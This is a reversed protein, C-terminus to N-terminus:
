TNPVDRFERRHAVAFARAKQMTDALLDYFEDDLARLQDRDFSALADVRAQRARWNLLPVDTGIVRWARELIEAVRYAGIQKLGDLVQPAAEGVANFFFQALGGNCVEVKLSWISFIVQEASSLGTWDDEVRHWLPDALADVSDEPDPLALARELSM